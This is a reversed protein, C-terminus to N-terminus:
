DSLLVFVENRLYFYVLEDKYFALTRLGEERIKRGVFLVDVNKMVANAKRETRVNVDFIFENFIM